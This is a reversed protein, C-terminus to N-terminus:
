LKERTVQKILSPFYETTTYSEGGAASGACRRHRAAHRKWREANGAVHVWPIPILREISNPIGLPLLTESTAFSAIKTCITSNHATIHEFYSYLFLLLSEIMKRLPYVYIRTPKFISFLKPETYSVYTSIRTSQKM